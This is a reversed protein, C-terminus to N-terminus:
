ARPQPDRYAHPQWPGWKKEYIARNNEFLAKKRAAALQNFSASLEHHIFVDDAVAVKFGAARVRNCYDDDEFMGIGFAEDLSGVQEFVRRSFMVCFFAASRVPIAQGRRAEVYRRSRTLMEDMGHYVIDLKAENGINNTVPGLLGLGPDRDFHRLLDIIWSTTVHTDNNLLVLYDGTAKALGVNNGAAFGVNTDNLIIYTAPNSRGWETLWAPSGDSSANDVVILELDPYHSLATISALCRKTLELNNYTLVIVSVRPMRSRIAKLLDLSRNAWTQKRAWACRRAALAADGIEDLAAGLAREFSVPDAGIHVLGPESQAVLAVEPMATGVFPKGAALYEYMKVPNTYLILETLQFPIMCVDFGHVYRPLEQYPVEGTMLVNPLGEVAATECGHTSGILVFTWGPNRRACHAVLPMDYWHSIAGFYGIVPGPAFRVIEAPRVAFHEVDCANRVLESARLKAVVERLGASTTIVLDAERILHDEQDLMAKENNLFGPHYDMCDYVTFNGQWGCVAERWFPLDIISVVTRLGCERRLRDLSERLALIQEPSPIQKYVSPHPLPCSLSILFVNSSPSEWFLYPRGEAPDVFEITLYFVRSGLRGLEAALQQPRQFRFHWNIVPFVVVDFM